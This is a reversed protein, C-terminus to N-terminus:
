PDSLKLKNTKGFVMQCNQSGIATVASIGDIVFYYSGNKKKDDVFSIRLM